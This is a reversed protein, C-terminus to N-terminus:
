TVTKCRPRTNNWTQSIPRHVIDIYRHEQLANIKVSLPRQWRNLCAMDCLLVHGHLLSPDNSTPLALAACGVGAQWAFAPRVRFECCRREGGEQARGVEGEVM